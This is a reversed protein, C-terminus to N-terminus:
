DLSRHERPLAIFNFEQSNTFATKDLISESGFAFPLEFLSYELEEFASWLEMRDSLINAEFIVLPRASAITQSAGRLVNIENGETDIKILDPSTGLSNIFDDLTIIEVRIKEVDHDSVLMERTSEVM